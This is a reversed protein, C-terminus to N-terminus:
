KKPWGSRNAAERLANLLLSEAAAYNDGAAEAVECSVMLAATDGEATLEAALTRLSTTKGTQWPAHLVFYRDERYAHPGRPHAACSSAHLPTGPRM